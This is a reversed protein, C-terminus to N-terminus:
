KSLYKRGGQIYLVGKCPHKVIRGFIDYTPEAIKQYQQNVEKIGNELDYKAFLTYDLYAGGWGQYLRIALLNDDKRFCASPIQFSVHREDTWDIDDIVLTGNVFVQIDDDHMCEFTFVYDKVDFAVNFRRRLWHRNYEGSWTYNYPAYWVDMGMPGTLESWSSDDYDFMTWARGKSDNAPDNYYFQEDNDRYVYKAKWPENAGWDLVTIPIDLNIDSTVTVLCQATIGTGDTATATVITNGKKLATVIGNDSVTAISNDMVNWAVTKIAADPNVTATLQISSGGALSLETASLNIYTVKGTPTSPTITVDTDGGWPTSTSDNWEIQASLTFINFLVAFVTLLKRM